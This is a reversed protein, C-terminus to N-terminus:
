MRSAGFGLRDALSLRPGGQALRTLLGGSTINRNNLFARLDDITKNQMFSRIEGFNLNPGDYGGRSGSSHKFQLLVIIYTLIIGGISVFNAANMNFVDCPRMPSTTTASYRAILVKVPHDLVIKSRFNIYEIHLKISGEKGIKVAVGRLFCIFHM